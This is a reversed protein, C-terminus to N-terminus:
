TWISELISWSMRELTDVSFICFDSTPLVWHFPRGPIVEYEQWSLGPLLSVKQALVHKQKASMYEHAHVWHNRLHAIQLAAKWDNSAFPDFVGCVKSLFTSARVIGNGRIDDFSLLTPNAAFLCFENLCREFFSVTMIAISICQLKQFEDRIHEREDWTSPLSSQTM